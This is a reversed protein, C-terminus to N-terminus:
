CNGTTEMQELKERSPVFACFILLIAFFAGICGVIAKIVGPYTAWIWSAFVWVGILVFVGIVLYGMLKLFHKAIRSLDELTPYIIQMNQEALERIKQEYMRASEQDCFIQFKWLGYIFTWVVAVALLASGLLKTTIDAVIIFEPMCLLVIGMIVLAFFIKKKM